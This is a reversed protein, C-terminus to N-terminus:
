LASYKSEGAVVTMLVRADKIADSPLEDLAKELIVFDADY